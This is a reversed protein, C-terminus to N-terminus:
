IGMLQCILESTQTQQEDASITAQGDGDQVGYDGFQAHNGGAITVSQADDPLNAACSELKERNCVGDNEGVVTLVRLASQSLDSTSFAALLVLGDWNAANSGQGLYAAAMAGGLSHGALYWHEVQPYQEQVSGAAGINFFAMDFPMNVLVCFVGQDALKSLLPAYAESDVRAGPYFVLGYASSSDGFTVWDQQTTGSTEQECIDQAEASASYGNSCWILFGAVVLVIVLVIIGAVRRGRHPKHKDQGAPVEAAVAQSGMAQPSATGGAGQNDAQRRDTPENAITM